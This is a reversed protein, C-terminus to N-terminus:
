SYIILTKSLLGTLFRTVVFHNDISFPMQTFTQIGTHAVIKWSQIIKQAANIKIWSHEVLGPPSQTISLTSVQPAPSGSKIGANDLPYLTIPYFQIWVSCFQMSKRIRTSLNIIIGLWAMKCRVLSRAPFPFFSHGVFILTLLTVSHRCAITKRIHAITPAKISRRNPIQPIAAWGGGGFQNIWSLFQIRSELHM